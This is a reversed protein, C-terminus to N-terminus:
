SPAHRAPIRWPSPTSTSGPPKLRRRVHRHPSITCLVQEGSLHSVASGVPESHPVTGDPIRMKASLKVTLGRANCRGLPIRTVDVGLGAGFLPNISLILTAVTGHSSWIAIIYLIPM